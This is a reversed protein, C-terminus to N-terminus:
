QWFKFSNYCITLYCPPNPNASRVVLNALAYYDLDSLKELALNTNLYQLSTFTDKAIGFKLYSRIYFTNHFPYVRAFSPPTPNLHDRHLPTAPKLLRKTANM